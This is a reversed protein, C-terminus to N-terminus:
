QVSWGLNQEVWNNGKDKAIAIIIAERISTDLLSIFEAAENFNSKILKGATTADKADQHYMDAVKDKIAWDSKAEEHLSKILANLNKM